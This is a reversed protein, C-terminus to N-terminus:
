NLDDLGDHDGEGDEIKVQGHGDNDDDEADQADDGNDDLSRQRVIERQSMREVPNSPMSEASSPDSVRASPLSSDDTTPPANVHSPPNPNSSAANMRSAEASSAGNDNSTRPGHGFLFRLFDDSPAMMPGQNHSHQHHHAHARHHQEFFGVLFEATPNNPPHHRGCGLCLPYQGTQQDNPSGANDGSPQSPSSSTDFPQLPSLDPLTTAALHDAIIDLYSLVAYCAIRGPQNGLRVFMADSSRALRRVERRTKRDRWSMIPSVLSLQPSPASNPSPSSTSSQSSQSASSNTSPPSSIPSAAASPIQLVRMGRLKSVFISQRQAEDLEGFRQLNWRRRREFLASIHTRGLMLQQELAEAGPIDAMLRGLWRGVRVLSKALLRADAVNRLHMELAPEHQAVFAISKRVNSPLDHMDNLVLIPRGTRQGVGGRGIDDDDGDSSDTEEDVNRDDGRAAKFLRNLDKWVQRAEDANLPLYLWRRRGNNTSICTAGSNVNSPGTSTTSNLTTPSPSTSATAIRIHQSWATQLARIMDRLTQMAPVNKDDSWLPHGHEEHRSAAHSAHAPVSSHPPSQPISPHQVSSSPASYSPQPAPSGPLANAQIPSPLSSPHDVRNGHESDGSDGDEMQIMADIERDVDSLNGSSLPLNILIPASSSQPGDDDDFAVHRRPSPPRSALGSMISVASLLLTWSIIAMITREISRSSVVAGPLILHSATQGVRGQELPLFIIEADLAGIPGRFWQPRIMIPPM